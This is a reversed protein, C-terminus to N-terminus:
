KVKKIKFVRRCSLCIYNIWGKKIRVKVTKSPIWVTFCKKCFRLKLIKPLKVNCKLKIKWAIEVYRRSLEPNKDYIEKALDLLKKIRKLAIKKSM